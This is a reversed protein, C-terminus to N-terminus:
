VADEFLSPYKKRVTRTYLIMPYVKDVSSQTLRDFGYKEYFSYVPKKQGKSIIMEDKADVTLGITGVIKTTEIYLEIAKALTQFGYDKNRHDRHVVFRGLKVTPLDMHSPFKNEITEHEDRRIRSASLCFMSVCIGDFTLGVYNRTLSNEEFQGMQAEIYHDLKKHNACFANPDILYKSYHFFKLPTAV